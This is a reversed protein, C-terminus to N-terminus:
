KYMKFSVLGIRQIFHIISVMLVGFGYKLSRKFNISSADDFYKTPCSIEAIQFKKYIIQSLMENDFVFDDSNTNFSINELVNKSFARYGTHYESLKYDVLWNQILTLIRNFVFKYYPMGGKLAGKGLIRSGLVVPYLEEGIINVMSPILKPTYQYDPHLMIIIDAGIELAKNYLTKQNGGYGKNKEHRICYKIGLQKALEFTSDKSADDCLILEDVLDMPIEDITKKLTLAANYAPMVVVVKKNKYM